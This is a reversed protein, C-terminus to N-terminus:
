SSLAKRQSKDLIELSRVEIGYLFRFSVAAEACFEGKGLPLNASTTPLSRDVTALENRKNFKGAATRRIEPRAVRQLDYRGSRSQRLRTIISKARSATAFFRRNAIDLPLRHVPPCLL